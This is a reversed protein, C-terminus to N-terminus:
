GAAIPQALIWLGAVTFALMLLLMPLQSIAARVRTKFVTLAIRHSLYVGAIHGFVIVAVQVHWVTSPDPVNVRAFWEATAFLNWGFGFPDSALPVIKLLQTQLLTYYHSVHYALAIPLLAPAFRCALSMVSLRSAVAVRMCAVFLLYVGLYVFPSALLCLTQWHQYLRLLAPFAAIPNSGLWLSFVNAYMDVWFLRRWVATEHLGDFATSSLMFMVFLLLSVREIRVRRLALWPAHSWGPRGDPGALPAMRALLGFLVSFLEGYRFWDRAGILGVGALNLASYLGLAIALSFPTGPGMLELWVLAMYFALAPTYGLASPYTYRGRTFGPWIREILEVLALWPNLWRYIDGVLAVTYGIGLLFVIWFATMSFNAYAGPVGFLGSAICLVLMAVGVAGACLGIVGRALPLRPGSLELGPAPGGPTRAPEGTLCFVMVVFSLALAACAGYLYLWVPVPLRYVQGFSHACAPQAVLLVASAVVGTGWGALGQRRSM